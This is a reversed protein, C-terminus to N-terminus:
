IYNDNTENGTKWVCVGKGETVYAKQSFQDRKRYLEQRENLM